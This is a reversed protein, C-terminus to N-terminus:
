ETRIWNTVDDVCEEETSDKGNPGKSWLDFSNPNNKGPCM